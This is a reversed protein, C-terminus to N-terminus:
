REDDEDENETEETPPWLDGFEREPANIALKLKEIIDLQGRAFDCAREPSDQKVVTGLSDAEERLLWKALAEVFEYSM